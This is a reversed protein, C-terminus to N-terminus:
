HHACSIRFNAPGTHPAIHAGPDLRFLVAELPLNVNHTATPPFTGVLEARKQLFKCIRPLRACADGPARTAGDWRLGAVCSGPIRSCLPRLSWAVILAQAATLVYIVIKSGVDSVCPM